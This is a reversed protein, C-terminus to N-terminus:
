NESEELSEDDDEDETTSVNKTMIDNLDNMFKEFDNQRILCNGTTKDGTGNNKIAIKRMSYNNIEKGQLVVDYYGVVRQFFVIWVDIRETNKFLDLASQIDEIEIHDQLDEEKIIAYCVKKEARRTLNAFIAAQISLTLPDKKECYYNAQKYNAGHDLLEKAMAFTSPKINSGYRKTGAVLSTYLYQVTDQPITKSNDFRNIYDVIQHFVVEGTCSVDEELFNLVAFGKSKIPGYISFIVYTDNYNVTDINELGKCGVTVALFKGTAFRKPKMDAPLSKVRNAKSLILEADFGLYRYFSILAYAACLNKIEYNLDVFVCVKELKHRKMFIRSDEFINKRAEFDKLNEEM